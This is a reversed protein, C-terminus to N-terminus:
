HSALRKGKLNLIPWSHAHLAQRIRLYSTSEHFDDEIEDDVEEQVPNLEVFEFGHEICWTQIQLRTVEGTEPANDCALIKIEPQFENVFPIWTQMATLGQSDVSMHFVAAEVAESFSESVLDREPLLMFHVEADYYKTDIHWPYCQITRSGFNTEQIGSVSDGM